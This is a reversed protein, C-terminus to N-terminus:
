ALLIAALFILVYLTAEVTRFFSIMALIINYIM